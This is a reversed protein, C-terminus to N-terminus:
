PATVGDDLRCNFTVGPRPASFAFRATTATTPDAPNAKIEPPPLPARGPPASRSGAVAFAPVAVVAAALLAVSARSRV